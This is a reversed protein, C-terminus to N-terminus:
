AKDKKAVKDQGQLAKRTDRPKVRFTGGCSPCRIMRDETVGDILLDRMCHPCFAQLM